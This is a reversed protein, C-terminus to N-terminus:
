PPTYIVNMKTKIFIYILLFLIIVILIILIIILFIIFYVYNKIKIWIRDKNLVNLNSNEM